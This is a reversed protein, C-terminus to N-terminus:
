GPLRGHDFDDRHEARGLGSSHSCSFESLLPPVLINSLTSRALPLRVVRDTAGLLLAAANSTISGGDFAAEVCRGEVSAFAFCDQSCEAPM